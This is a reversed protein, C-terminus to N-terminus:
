RGCVLVKECLLLDCLLAGVGAAAGTDAGDGKGNMDGGSREGEEDGCAELDM